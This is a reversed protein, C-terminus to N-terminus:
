PNPSSKARTPFHHEVLRYVAISMLHRPNNRCYGELWQNVTEVPVNPLVDYTDDREINVATVFGAWWTEAVLQDEKGFQLYDSCSQAGVGKARFRGKQDAAQAPITAVALLLCALVSLIRM